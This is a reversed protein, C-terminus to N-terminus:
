PRMFPRALDSSGRMALQAAARGCLAGIVNGTGSYGGILWLGPEPEEFVPLGDPTYSVSAAWRHTVPARVGLRDRLFDELFRQVTDSPAADDTWEGDGGQDRFGGLAIRGDALQQFYEYGWRLYVPRPFCVEPAPATALMQLRATRVRGALSPMLRELRGDVAVVVRGCRVRGNPTRVETGSMLVAPSQEYLRAGGELARRALARARVLPQFAGDTPILLGRGEPGEYWEAPLADERMVALQARCDEEEEASAAIRLSGERRVAEPTEAEMRDMEELTLRYISRARDRGYERAAHHHFHYSGALLFGGNRGAAGGAVAHADVGVVRAGLRLLEGVCALGSGGLGVVCVDAEVEGELRPLDTWGGEEWLPVNAPEAAATAAPERDAQPSTTM